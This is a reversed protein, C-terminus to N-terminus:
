LSDDRYRRWYIAAIVLVAGVAVGIWMQAQGLAAVAHQDSAYFRMPQGFDQWRGGAGLPTLGAAVRSALWDSLEHLRLTAFGSWDIWRGIVWVLFPVLAAWLIPRVRSFSSCFLLWGYIPLLWLANIMELVLSRWFHGFIAASSWVADLPNAGIRWVSISLLLLLVIYTLFFVALMLLPALLMATSLKSLVTRTDSVPMSKFFLVSRDRREDFLAGLCYLVLVVFLVGHFLSLVGFHFARFFLERQASFTPDAAYKLLNSTSADGGLVVNISGGSITGLLTVLILIGGVVLPTYLLAGRHQQFERRILALFSRVPNLTQSKSRALNSDTQVDM